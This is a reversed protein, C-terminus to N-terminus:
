QIIVREIEPTKTTPVIIKLHQLEAFISAIDSQWRSLLIKMAEDEVEAALTMPNLALAITENNEAFILLKIPLFSVLEPHSQTIQRVEDLKGVFLIRYFDSKYGFDALGGDCRQVHALKYGYAEILNEAEQLTADFPAQVRVSLFNEAQVQLSILLLLLVSLCKRLGNM